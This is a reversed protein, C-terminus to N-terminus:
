LSRHDIYVRARDDLMLRMVRRFGDVSTGGALRYARALRDRQTEFLARELDAGPPTLTLLRHRRDVRSPTQAVLGQRLLGNMVRGLSQKTVGLLALLDTVTIGPSRGVFHLVRHHARGLGHSALLADASAALDRGALLILDQALRLDAERLFLLSAGAADKPAPAGDAM